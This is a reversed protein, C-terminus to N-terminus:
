PAPAEDGIEALAPHHPWLRRARRLQLDADADRGLRRLAVVLNVRARFSGPDLRLARDYAAAAAGADGALLQANGIAVENGVQALLPRSRELDVLAAVPEGRELHALGLAFAIAGSRPDIAAARSLLALKRDPDADRAATALRAGLWTSGAIPLLAAAALLGLAPSVVRGLVPRPALRVTRPACALALAMPIVAGSQRLPSDAIASVAFAILTAAEARAGARRCAVIGCGIAAVFLALGPAGTEMAIQLWENHATTANVFRRGAEGIPLAALASSQGDLFLRPFAGMGQGWPLADIAARAAIRWIWARGELSRLAGFQAGVFILTVAAGTALALGVAVSRRIPLRRDALGAVAAVALAIWATRSRALLLAPIQALALMAFLRKGRTECGARLVASLSLPLTAALLLGLWNPNGQGGHIALGRAGMMVQALAWLAAAGGLVTATIRAIAAAEDRSRQSAAVVLLAAGALTLLDRWGGGRGWCLSLASAAVFGVFLLSAPAIEPPHARRHHAALAVVAVLMVLFRKPDAAPAGPDWALGALAASIAFFTAFTAAPRSTKEVSM